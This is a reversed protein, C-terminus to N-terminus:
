IINSKMWEESKASKLTLLAERSFKKEVLILAVSYIQIMAYFFAAFTLWNLFKLLASVAPWPTPRWLKNQSFM